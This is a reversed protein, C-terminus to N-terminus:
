TGRGRPLGESRGTDLPHTGMHNGYLVDFVDTETVGQVAALMRM